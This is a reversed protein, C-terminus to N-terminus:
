RAGGSASDPMALELTSLGYCESVTKIVQEISIPHIYKEETGALAEEAFKYEGLIRGDM